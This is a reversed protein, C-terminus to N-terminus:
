LLFGGKCINAKLFELDSKLERIEKQLGTIRAHQGKRLNEVKEKLIQIERVREEEVTQPFLQLQM